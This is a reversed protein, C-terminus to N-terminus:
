NVMTDLPLISTSRVSGVSSFRLVMKTEIDYPFEVM